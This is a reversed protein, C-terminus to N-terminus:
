KMQTQPKFLFWWAISTTIAPALSIALLQALVSSDKIALLAGLSALGWGLASAFIWWAAHLIRRRLFVWQGLGLAGGLATFILAMGWSSTNNPGLGPLSLALVALALLWGLASALIWWGMKPLYLRLLIYQLSSAFLWVLPIFVYEFLYDETIHSRGGILIRDGVWRTVLSIIGFYSFWALPFALISVVVWSPYFFWEPRKFSITM